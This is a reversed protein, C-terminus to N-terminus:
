LELLNMMKFYIVNFWQGINSYVVTFHFWMAKMQPNNEHVWYLLSFELVLKSKINQWHEWMEERREMIIRLRSIVVNM